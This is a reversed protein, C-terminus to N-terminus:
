SAFLFHHWLTYKPNKESSGYLATQIIESAKDWYIKTDINSAELDGGRGYKYHVDQRIQRPTESSESDGMKTKHYSYFPSQDSENFENYDGPEYHSRVLEENKLAEPGTFGSMDVSGGLLSLRAPDLEDLMPHILSGTIKGQKFDLLSVVQDYKKINGGKLKNETNVLWSIQAPYHTTTYELTDPDETAQSTPKPFGNKALWEITEEHLPNKLLISGDKILAQDTLDFGTLGYRILGGKKIFAMMPKAANPNVTDGESYDRGTSPTSETTGTLSPEGAQQPEGADMKFISRVSDAAASLSPGMGTAISEAIAPGSTSVMIPNAWVANAEGSQPFLRNSSSSASRKASRKDAQAHSASPAPRASASKAGKNGSRKPGRAQNSSSSRQSKQAPAATSHSPQPSSRKLKATPM